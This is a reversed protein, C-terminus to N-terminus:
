SSRNTHHEIWDIIRWDVWRRDPDLGNAAIFGVHGGHSTIHLKIAPSIECQEFMRVPIVPDDASTLLLTPIRVESLLPASSCRTYYEKADSFGILPATFQDDFQFLRTPLPRLRRDLLDPVARRRRQLARHLSRMFTQDIFRNAGKRLQYACELLDIPPSVAVACDVNGPVDDGMEGLLKLVINGSMSVGLLALPTEPCLEGLYQVVALLDDSKGAHYHGRAKDFGAGCGRLDMRFARVGRSRLKEAIRLMYPSAHCGGLGHLLLAARDGAQWGPPCDDQLVIRDGDVLVVEHQKTDTLQPRVPIYTAAITQRHPGRLM